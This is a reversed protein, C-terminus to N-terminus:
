YRSTNASSALNSYGPCLGDPCQVYSNKSLVRSDCCEGKRWTDCSVGAVTDKSQAASYSEYPIGGFEPVVLIKQGTTNKTQDEDSTTNQFMNQYYNSLQRYACNKKMLSEYSSGYSYATM